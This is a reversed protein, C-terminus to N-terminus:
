LNEFHLKSEIKVQLVLPLVLKLADVLHVIRKQKSQSIDATLDDIEEQTKGNLLKCNLLFNLFIIQKLRFDNIQHKAMELQSQMIFTQPSVELLDIIKCNHIYRTVWFIKNKESLM